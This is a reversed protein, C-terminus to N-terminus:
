LFSAAQNQTLHTGAEQRIACMFALQFLAAKMRFFAKWCSSSKAVKMFMHLFHAILPMACLLPARAVEDGVRDLMRREVGPLPSPIWPAKAAHVAVRQSFDDNLNAM